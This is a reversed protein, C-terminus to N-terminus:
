NTDPADEALRAKVYAHWDKNLACSCNEGHVHEPSQPSTEFAEQPLSARLRKLRIRKYDNPDREALAQCQPCFTILHSERALRHISFTHLCALNSCVYGYTPM